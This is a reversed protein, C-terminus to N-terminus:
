SAKQDACQAKGQAAAPALASLGELLARRGQRPTGGLLEDSWQEHVAAMRDFENKGKPTLAIVSRRRDEQDPLKRVLGEAMMRDLLMSINGSTSALLMSALRSVTLGEAFRDLQSLVDFRVLSQGFEARFRRDMERAMPLAARALELWLRLSTRSDTM